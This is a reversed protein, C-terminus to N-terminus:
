QKVLCILLLNFMFYVVSHGVLGSLERWEKSSVCLLFGVYGTAWNDAQEVCQHLFLNAFVQSLIGVWLVSKDPSRFQPYEVFMDYDLVAQTSLRDHPPTKGHARHRGKSGNTHPAQHSLKLSVPGTGVTKANGARGEGKTVQVLAKKEIVPNKKTPEIATKKDNLDTSQTRNTESKSTEDDVRISDSVEAQEISASENRVAVRALETAEINRAAPIKWLGIQVRQKSEEAVIASHLTELM